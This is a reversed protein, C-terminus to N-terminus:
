SLVQNSANGFLDASQAEPQAAVQFLSPDYKELRCFIAKEVDDGLDELMLTGEEPSISASIQSSYSNYVPRLCIVFGDYNEPMTLKYVGKWSAFVDGGGFHEWESSFECNIEYLTGDVETQWTSSLNENGTSDDIYFLKGTYYDYQSFRVSNYIRAGSLIPMNMRHFDYKVAVEMQRMGNGDVADSVLDIRCSVPMRKYDHADNFAAGGNRLLTAGSGIYYNCKVDKEKFYFNRETSNEKTKYEVTITRDGENKEMLLSNEFIHIRAFFEGTEKEYLYLMEEEGAYAYFAGGRLFDGDNETYTWIDPDSISLINGKTNSDEYWQNFFHEYRESAILSSPSDTRRFSVGKADTILDKSLANLSVTGENQSDSLVFVKGDFTVEGNGMVEGDSNYNYWLSNPTFRYYQTKEEDAWVGVFASLRLRNIDTNQFSESQSVCGVFCFSILCLIVLLRKIKKM